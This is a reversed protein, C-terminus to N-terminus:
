RKKVQAGGKVYKETWKLKRPDRRIVFMNKSCKTSCTWLIRGDNRVHMTGTGGPISRGCFACNRFTPTTTAIDVATRRRMM